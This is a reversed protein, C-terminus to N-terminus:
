TDHGALNTARSIPPGGIASPPPTTPTQHPHPPHRAPRHAWAHSRYGNGNDTLIREITVGHGAFWVVARALFAV